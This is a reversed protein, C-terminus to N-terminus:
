REECRRERTEEEKAAPGPRQQSFDHPLALAPAISVLKPAGLSQVLAVLAIPYTAALLASSVLRRAMLAVATAATFLLLLTMAPHM